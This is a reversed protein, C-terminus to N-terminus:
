YPADMLDLWEARDHGLERLFELGARGDRVWRVIAGIFDGKALGISVFAGPRLAEIKGTLHCGSPSIDRLIIAREEGDSLRLIGANGIQHRRQRRREVPHTASTPDFRALASKM